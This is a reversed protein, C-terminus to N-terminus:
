TCPDLQLLLCRACVVIASNRLVCVIKGTKYLGKLYKEHDHLHRRDEKGAKEIDIFYQINITYLVSLCFQHVHRKLSINQM